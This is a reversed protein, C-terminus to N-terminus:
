QLIFTLLISSIFWLIVPNCSEDHCSQFWPFFYFYVDMIMKLSKTESKEYVAYSIKQVNDIECYEGQVKKIM